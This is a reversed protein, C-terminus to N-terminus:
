LVTSSHLLLVAESVATRVDALEPLTPDLPTIFACVAVRAFRENESVADLTM